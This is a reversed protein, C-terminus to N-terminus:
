GAQLHMCIFFFLYLFVFCFYLYLFVLFVLVYLYLFLLAYLYLFVFAYLYLFVFACVKKYFMNQKNHFLLYKSYANKQLFRTRNTLSSVSSIPRPSLKHGLGLVSHVCNRHCGSHEPFTIKVNQLKAEINTCIKAILDKLSGIIVTENKM